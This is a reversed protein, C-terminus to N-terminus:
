LQGILSFIPYCPLVTFQDFSVFRLNELYQKYHKMDRHRNVGTIMFQIKHQFSIVVNSHSLIAIVLFIYSFESVKFFRRMVAQHARSLVPFGAKNSLFLSTPIVVCRVPEGLWRDISESSPIDFSLELALGIMNDSNCIGLFKRWRFTFILYFLVLIYPSLIM